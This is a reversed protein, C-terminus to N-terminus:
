PGCLGSKQSCTGSACAGAERCDRVCVIEPSCVYGQPCDVGCEPLPVCRNKKPDTPHVECREDPPCDEDELCGTGGGAGSCPMYPPPVARTVSFSSEFGDTGQQLATQDLAVGQLDTIDSSAEVRYSGSHLLCGDVHFLALSRKEPTGLCASQLEQLYWGGDVPKGTPEHIVRLNDKVTAEDIVKSLYVRISNFSKIDLEALNEGPGPVTYLVRPPLHADCLDLPVAVEISEGETFKVAAAGGVAAARDGAFGVARISFDRALNSGPLLRILPFTQSEGVSEDLVLEMEGDKDVDRAELPGVKGGQAPVNEFGDRADFVFEIRDLAEVVQTETNLEPKVTLRLRITTTPEPDGGCSALLTTLLATLLGLRFM